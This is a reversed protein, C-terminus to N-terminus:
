CCLATQMGTAMVTVPTYTKCIKHKPPRPMVPRPVPVEEWNPSLDQPSKFWYPQQHLVSGDDVRMWARDGSLICVLKVELIRHAGVTWKRMWSRSVRLINEGMVRPKLGVLRKTETLIITKGSGFYDVSLLRGLAVRTGLSKIGDKDHSRWIAVLEGFIPLSWDLGLLHVHQRETHTEQMHDEDLKGDPQHPPSFSQTVGVEQLKKKLVDSVFEGGGDSM